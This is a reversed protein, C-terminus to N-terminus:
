SKSFFDTVKSQNTRRELWDSQALSNVRSLADATDSNGKLELFCLADELCSIAERYSTIKPVVPPILDQIEEDNDNSDKLEQSRTIHRFFVTKGATQFHAVLLHIM